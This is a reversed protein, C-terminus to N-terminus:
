FDGIGFDSSAKKRFRLFFKMIHFRGSSSTVERVYDKLSGLSGASFIFIFFAIFHAGLLSVPVEEFGPPRRGAPAGGPGISWETPM